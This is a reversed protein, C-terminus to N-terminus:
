LKGIGKLYNTQKNKGLERVVYTNNRYIHVCVCHITSYFIELNLQESQIKNKHDKFKTTNKGSM